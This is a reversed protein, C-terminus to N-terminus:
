DTGGCGRVTLEILDVAEKMDDHEWFRLVTWGQSELQRNTDQDRALNAYIKRKWWELNSKPARCHKPCGHWFCGDVFIAVKQRSFLVDARRRTLNPIPADVRYRLGRRHLEKRLLLEPVTDRSPQRAMRATVSPLVRADSPFPPVRPIQGNDM